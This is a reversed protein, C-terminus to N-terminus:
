LERVEPMSPVNAQSMRLERGYEGLALSVTGVNSVVPMRLRSVTFGKEYFYCQHSLALLHPDTVLDQLKRFYGVELVRAFGHMEGAGPGFSETPRSEVSAGSVRAGLMQNLMNRALKPDAFHENPLGHQQTILRQVLLYVLAIKAERSLEMKKGDVIVEESHRQTQKFYALGEVNPHWQGYPAYEVTWPQGPKWSRNGPNEVTIRDHSHRGFTRGPPLYEPQIKKPLPKPTAIARFHFPATCLFRDIEDHLRVAARQFETSWDIDQQANYMDDLTAQPSLVTAARHDGEPDFITAYKRPYFHHLLISAAHVYASAVDALTTPAFLSTSTAVNTSQRSRQNTVVDPHPVHDVSADVASSSIHGRQDNELAGRDIRAM